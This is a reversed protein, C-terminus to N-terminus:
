MMIYLRYCLQDFSERRCRKLVIMAFSNTPMKTETDHQVRNTNPAFLIADISGATDNTDVDIVHTTPTVLLSCNLSFVVRVRRNCFPIDM